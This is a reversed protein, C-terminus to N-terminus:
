KKARLPDPKAARQFAAERARCGGCAWCPDPGDETCSWTRDFPASVNYGLDVVQWPELDLLPAAVDLDPQGCTMQLMEQWVQVFETARALGDGDGGIRMGVHVAVAGYHVAFRAAIAVLPVLEVLQPVASAPTRPDAAQVTAATTGGLSGLFPLPLTHERYPKFHTVQREYADRYRKAPGGADTEAFVTVVRYKQAALATAVAANVGGNNLVIALDKAM